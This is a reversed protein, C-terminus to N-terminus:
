VVEAAAAIYHAPSEAVADGTLDVFVTSEEYSIRSVKNAPIRVENGSLRHGIKVVLQGIAWSQDDILFDCVHGLLRENAQLNYGNVTQTSRMHADPGKPRAGSSSPLTQAPLAMMPVGSAGWLADGQWYYPWGYYCHYEEEFQRSVPKHAEISPSDEIQKRTLGVRLIKDTHALRGLSHPSILVLRGTLWSGTDAVVYRVTWNHDDFYFDKVHGVEGDMAGLKDGYLQKISQLMINHNAPHRVTM